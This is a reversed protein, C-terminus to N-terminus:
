GAGSFVQSGKVVQTAYRDAFCTKYSVASDCPEDAVPCNGANGDPAYQLIGLQSPVLQFACAIKYIVTRAACASDAHVTLQESPHMLKNKSSRVQCFVSATSKACAMDVPPCERALALEDTKRWSRDPPTTAPIESIRTESPEGSFIRCGVLGAVLAINVAIQNAKLQM